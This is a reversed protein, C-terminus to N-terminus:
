FPETAAGVTHRQQATVSGHNNAFSNAIHDKGRDVQLFVGLQHEICSLKAIEVVEGGSLDLLRRCAAHDARM